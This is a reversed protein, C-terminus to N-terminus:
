QHACPSEIARKPLLHSIAYGACLVSIWLVPYRYRADNNTLYYPLAYFAPAAFFFWLAPNKRIALLVLGIWSVVTATWVSRSSLPLPEPIPFWFRQVRLATLRVFEAPHSAIWAQAISQRNRNYEAEGLQRVLRAEEVNSNPHPMNPNLTFNEMYTPGAGDRNSVYLELGFNDRLPVLEHLVAYNRITWPTLTLVLIGGGAVALQTIRTMSAGRLVFACWVAIPVIITPNLLMLVGAACGTLLDTAFPAAALKRTAVCLLAFGCSVTLADWQAWMLNLPLAIFLVAAAIGPKREGFIHESIAPLCAIMLGQAIVNWIVLWISFAFMSGSLRIMAAMLFPYLPAVHATFGTPLAHYPNAFIGQAALTRAVNLSEPGPGMGADPAMAFYGATSVAGLVFLLVSLGALSLPQRATKRHIAPAANAVTTETVVNASSPM